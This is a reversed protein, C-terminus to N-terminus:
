YIKMARNLENMRRLSVLDSRIKGASTIHARQCCHTLLKHFRAAREASTKADLPARCRSLSRALHTRGIMDLEAKLADFGDLSKLHNFRRM